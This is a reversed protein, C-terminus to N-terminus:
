SSLASSALSGAPTPPLHPSVGPGDTHALIRSQGGAAAGHTGALSSLAELLSHSVADLAALLTSTAVPRSTLVDRLRGSICLPTALEKMPRQMESMDNASLAPPCSVKKEKHKKLKEIRWKSYINNKQLSFFM